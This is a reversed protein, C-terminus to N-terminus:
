KICVRLGARGPIRMKTKNISAKSTGGGSGKPNGGKKIVKEMEREWKGFLLKFPETLEFTIHGIKRFDEPEIDKFKTLWGKRLRIDKFVQMLLRRQNRPHLKEYEEGLCVFADLVQFLENTDVQKEEAIGDLEEKSKEIDSEITDIAKKIGEAYKSSEALALNKYAKTQDRELKDIRNRLPERRSENAKVREEWDAQMQEIIPKIVKKDKSFELLKMKVAEDIAREPWYLQPCNIITKQKKSFGKGVVRVKRESVGSHNEGFHNKYWDSDRDKKGYTCRYSVITGKPKGYNASVDNPTIRCGCYDCTLIGQLKHRDQTTSAEM